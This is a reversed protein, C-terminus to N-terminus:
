RVSLQIYVMWGHHLHTETRLHTSLWSARSPNRCSGSDHHSLTLLFLPYVFSHSATPRNCTTISSHYKYQQPKNGGLGPAPLEDSGRLDCTGRPNHTASIWVYRESTAVVDDQRRLNDKMAARLAGPWLGYVLWIRVGLLVMCVTEYETDPCQLCIFVVRRRYRFQQSELNPSRILM